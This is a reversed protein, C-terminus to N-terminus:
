RDHVASPPPKRCGQVVNSSVAAGVSCCSSVTQNSLRTNEGAPVILGTPGADTLRSMVSSDRISARLRKWEAIVAADRQVFSARARRGPFRSLAGCSATSLKRKHILKRSTRDLSPRMMLRRPTPCLSLQDPMARHRSAPDVRRGARRAECACRGPPMPDGDPGVVPSQSKNTRQVRSLHLRPFGAPDTTRLADRRDGSARVQDGLVAAPPAGCPSARHTPQGECPRDVFRSVSGGAGHPAGGGRM